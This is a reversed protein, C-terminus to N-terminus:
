QAPHIIDMSTDFWLVKDGHRRRFEELLRGGEGNLWRSVVSLGSARFHLAFASGPDDTESSHIRTLLPASLEGRSTAAPIYVKTVWEKFDAISEPAVAFTTNHLIM